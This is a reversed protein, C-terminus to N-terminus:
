SRPQQRLRLEDAQPRGIPSDRDHLLWPHSDFVLFGLLGHISSSRTGIGVELHLDVVMVGVSLSLLLALSSAFARRTEVPGPRPAFDEEGLLFSFV